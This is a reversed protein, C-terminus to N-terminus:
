FRLSMGVAAVRSGRDRIAHGPDTRRRVHEKETSGVVSFLGVGVDVGGMVPLSRLFATSSGQPRELAVMETSFHRTPGAPLAAQFAPAPRVATAAFDDPNAAGASADALLM